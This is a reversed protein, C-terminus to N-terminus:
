INLQIKIEGLVIKLMFVIVLCELNVLLEKLILSDITFYIGPYDIDIALQALIIVSQPLRSFPAILFWM